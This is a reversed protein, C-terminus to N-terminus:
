TVNESSPDGQPSHPPLVESQEIQQVLNCDVLDVLHLAIFRLFPNGYRWRKVIRHSGDVSRLSQDAPFIVGIPPVQLQKATISALHSEEIGSRTAITEYWEPTLKTRFVEYPITDAVIADKLQRVFFRLTGLDCALDFIEHNVLRTIWVGEATERTSVVQEFENSKRASLMRLDFPTLSGARTISLATM